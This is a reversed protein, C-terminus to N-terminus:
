VHWVGVVKGDKGYIKGGRLKKKSKRQQEEIQKITEAVVRDIAQQTKKGAM